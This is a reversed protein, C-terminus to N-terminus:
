PRFTAPSRQGITVPARLTRGSQAHAISLVMDDQLVGIHATEGTAAALRELHTQAIGPLDMRGAARTGLEVLKLGLGYKGSQPDKHLYGHTELVAILRHGTSKNLGLRRSLEAATLNSETRGVLDLISLVRELVQVRYPPNVMHSGPEPHLICTKYKFVLVSDIRKSAM